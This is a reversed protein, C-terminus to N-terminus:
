KVMLTQHLSYSYGDIEISVLYLGSSLNDNDVETSFVGAATKFQRSYVVRGLYDRISMRFEQAELAVFGINFTGDTPNPYMDFSHLIVKGTEDVGIPIEPETVTIVVLGTDCGGFDDCVIVYVSDNGVFGANAAYIFCTDNDSIGTVSGNAPGSAIGTVDLNDNDGDTAQLCVTLPINAATIQTIVNPAIVPAVNVLTVTISISATDCGGSQDCVIIEVQDVGVFGLNPTYIFCTDGDSLGTISGNQPGSAIGTADLPDNDADTVDLCVTISVDEPTSVTLISPSIVPNVIPPTYILSLTDTSTICGLINTAVLYYDGDQTITYTTATEGPIPAGNMYWQLDPASSFTTLLNIIQFFLPTAPYPVVEVSRVTTSSECGVSSTVTAWYDGTQYTVYISDTAGVILNTDIYWQYFTGGGTVLTISDGTCVSDNPAYAISDPNPYAHVYITDYDIYSTDIQTIITLNGNIAQTGAAPSITQVNYTAPGTVNVITLGLDDHQSINDDDFFQITFQVGEVVHGLNSWAPTMSNSIVPSDFLSFGDNVRFYIDPNGTCVFIYPEEIDGCWDDNTVNVSASSLVYELIDMQCSVVYTGPTTYVNTPFEDTSTTGDGFDWNYTILPDGGSQLIPSFDTSVSDCGQNNSMTFVSNGSPNAVITLPVDFSEAQVVSQSGLTVYALVSVTIIYNGPLLPTGCIKACGRESAPPNQPPYFTTVDTGTYDYATWQMGAPLGSLGVVDIQTLDVTGSVPVTINFQEPMYFTVDAEYYQQATDTPLVAPCLKPGAPVSDCTLDIICIPCSQALVVNGISALTLLLLARM